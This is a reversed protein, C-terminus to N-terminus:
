FRSAMGDTKKEILGTYIDEPNRNRIKELRGKAAISEKEGISNLLELSKGLKSVHAYTISAFDCEFQISKKLLPFADRWSRRILEDMLMLLSEGANDHTELAGTLKVNNRELKELQKPKMSKGKDKLKEVENILSNIKSTYHNLNNRHKGYEYYRSQVRKSVTEMWDEVYDVLRSHQEIKSKADKFVAKHVDFYSDLPEADPKPRPSGKVVLLEGDNSINLYDKDEKGKIEDESSYSGSSRSNMTSSLESVATSSLPEHPLNKTEGARGGGRIPTPIGIEPYGDYQDETEEESSASARDAHKDYEKEKKEAAIEPSVIEKTTGTFSDEDDVIVANIGRSFDANIGRSFDYSKEGDDQEWNPNREASIETEDDSFVKGSPPDASESRRYHNEGARRHFDEGAGAPISEGASAVSQSSPPDRRASTGGGAGKRADDSATAARSGASAGLSLTRSAKAGEPEHAPEKFVKSGASARFSTTRSAKAGEPEHVPAPAPAPEDFVYSDVDPGLRERIVGSDPYEMMDIDDDHDLSPLRGGFNKAQPAPNASFESEESSTSISSEESPAPAVPSANYEGPHNYKEKPAVIRTLPTGDLM